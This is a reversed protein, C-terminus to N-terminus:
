NPGPPAAGSGPAAPGPPGSAGAQAAETPVPATAAAGTFDKTWIYVTMPLEVSLGPTSGSIKIKQFSGLRPMSKSARLFSLLSPFSKASIGFKDLLVQVEKTDPTPPDTRVDPLQGTGGWNGTSAVWGSLLRGLGHDGYEIWLRGLARVPDAVSISPMKAAYCADLRREARAHEARVSDYQIELSSVKDCWSKADDRDKLAAQYRENAGKILLFYGAAAIVVLIAIGIIMAQKRTLKSLKM